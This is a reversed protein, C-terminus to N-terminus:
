LNILTVIKHKELFERTLPQCQNRKIKKTDFKARAYSVSLIRSIFAYRVEPDM